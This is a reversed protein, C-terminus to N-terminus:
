QKHLALPYFHLPLLLCARILFSYVVHLQGRTVEVRYIIGKTIRGRGERMGWDVDMAELCTLRVTM